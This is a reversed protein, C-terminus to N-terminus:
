REQSFPTVHQGDTREDAGGEIAKLQAKENGIFRAVLAPDQMPIFHTFDPLYVDRGNKFQAALQEWTPSKTFNTVKWEEETRRMARLIVVPTEIQEILAYINTHRQNFYVSAEVIPPCALAFGDGDARPLLGYRCYDELVEPRWLSYPHRDKFTDFMDQWSSWRNRRNAVPHEEPGKLDAYRNQAYIDPRSLVPDVLVLRKFVAPLDFATQTMCHGGMSHGVGIIDKLSLAEILERIDQAIIRWSQLPKEFESRGHGRLEIAIVRFGEPLAAITKDWVRAHFGTAHAMLIVPADADGWEFYSIRAESAYFMHHTPNGQM